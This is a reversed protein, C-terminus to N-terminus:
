PSKKIHNLILIPGYTYIIYSTSSLQKRNNCQTHIYMHLNSFIGYDQARRNHIYAYTYVNKYTCIYKHLLNIEYNFQTNSLYKHIFYMCIKRVKHIYCVYKGISRYRNMCYIGTFRYVCKHLYMLKKQTNLHVIVYIYIHIYIHLYM